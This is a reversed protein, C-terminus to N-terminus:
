RSLLSSEKCLHVIYFLSDSESESSEPRKSHIPNEQPGEVSHTKSFSILFALKMRPQVMCFVMVASLLKKLSEKVEFTRLLSKVLGEIRSSNPKVVGVVAAM